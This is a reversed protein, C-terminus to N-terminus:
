STPKTYGVGPAGQSKITYSVKVMDKVKSMVKWNKIKADTWTYKRSDAEPGIFAEADVVANVNLNHNSPNHHPRSDSYFATGTLTLTLNTTEDSTGEGDCTSTTDIDTGTEEVDWDTNCLEFGNIKVPGTGHIADTAM